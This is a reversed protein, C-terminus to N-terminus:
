CRRRASATAASSCSRRAATSSRASARSSRCTATRRPSARRDRVGHQGVAAEDHVQHVPAPHEVAGAGDDAAARSGEAAVPGPEVAHRRRLARHLREVARDEERAARQRIRDRSRIQTKALVMDDYGGTYTIITQYDIDPSTRASRRQPLAPRALHRDAHRRLPGPVRAALPDLRPGSPEDARRAAAGGPQGFLAQALLVRVKQGGQLEAMTREHLEDPIDLGQLLIAADSEASYGDEEGVIGELEGLRM